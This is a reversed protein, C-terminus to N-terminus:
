TLPNTTRVMRWHIMLIPRSRLYMRMQPHTHFSVSVPMLTYIYVMTAIVKLEAVNRHLCLDLMHERECDCVCVGNSTDEFSDDEGPPPAEATFTVFM